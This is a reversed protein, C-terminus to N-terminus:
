ARRIGRQELRRELIMRDPDFDGLLVHAAISRDLAEAPALGVLESAVVDVSRRNAEDRVADFAGTISTPGVDILNMSVQVTGRHPLSVGIAKVGRLGGSSQRVARAIGRALDLRDSALEVNFAVLPGRAGVVSVGASPHPASPGYDPHWASSAMRATLNALGGRRIDELSRRRGPPSAEEYLFVPIDFAEAVRRGVRRALEVSAAMPAELLPVFPVVDVAGVRPHGGEHRRLDISAVAEAFLALVAAELDDPSGAVTYVSRNHAPDATVDLVVAPTSAMADACAAVVGSRRGESVNPVCELWPV